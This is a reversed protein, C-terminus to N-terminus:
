GQWINHVNGQIMNSVLNITRGVVAAIWWVRGDKDVYIIPNNGVYSYHSYTQHSPDSQYFIPGDSDYIIAPLYWLTGSSLEKELITLPYLCMGLIYM